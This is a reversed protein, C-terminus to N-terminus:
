KFQSRPSQAVMTVSGDLVAYNVGKPWWRHATPMNSYWSDSLVWTDPAMTTKLLRPWAVSKLLFNSLLRNAPRERFSYYFYSINGETVNQASFALEPRYESPCYFDKVAAGRNPGSLVRVLGLHPNDLKDEPPLWSDNDDAYMRCGLMVNRLHTRCLILDANDRARGLAPVMVSLMLGVAAVVVLLEVVTFGPVTAQQNNTTRQQNATELRGLRYGAVLLWCRVVRKWEQMVARGHAM